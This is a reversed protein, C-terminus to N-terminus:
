FHGQRATLYVLRNCPRNVRVRSEGQDPPILCLGYLDHGHTALAAPLAGAFEASKHRALQLCPM